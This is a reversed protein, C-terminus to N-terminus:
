RLRRFIAIGRDNIQVLEWGEASKRNLLAELQRNALKASEVRYEWKPGRADAACTFLLMLACGILLRTCKNRSTTFRVSSPIMTHLIPTDM